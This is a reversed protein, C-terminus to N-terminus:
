PLSSVPITISTTQGDPRLAALTLQGTSGPLIGFTNASAEGHWTGAGVAILTVISAGGSLTVKQVNTTTIADIQVVANRRLVTPKLMAYFLQPSDSPGAFTSQPPAGFIFINTEAFARPTVQAVPSSSPRTSVQIIPTPTSLAAPQILAAAGAPSALAQAGANSRPASGSPFVMSSVVTPLARPTPLPMDPSLPNRSDNKGSGLIHPTVVIVLENKTTTTQDNRFVKGVLPLDGLGPIKSDTKQLGEQILGGIILTENDRLHVSTQTDRTSIQPVGNLYGTLSNVVPHLSVSLEADDTIIPTIDLTVGTQFSQLQTTAV